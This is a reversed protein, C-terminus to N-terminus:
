KIKKAQIVAGFEVGNGLAIEAEGDGTIRIRATLTQGKRSKLEELEDVSTGSFLYTDDTIKKCTGNAEKDIQGESSITLKEKTVDISLDIENLQKVYEDMTVKTPVGDIANKKVLAAYNRVSDVKWKGLVANMDKDVATVGTSIIFSM